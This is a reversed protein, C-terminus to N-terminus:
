KRGGFCDQFFNQFVCYGTISAGPPWGIGAEWFFEGGSDIGVQGALGAQGQAGFNWGVTPDYPSWTVSGGVGPTVIGGGVYGYVGGTGIIIGGTGGIWFGGSVNIDIYWLGLPDKLLLPNNVVYAYSNMTEPDLFMFNRAAIGLAYMDRDQMWMRAQVLNLADEAVFRQLQSHYYRSRYYSLGTGDNERGTYQFPNSSSAGTATTKGFPEYTYETQVTGSSDALAIASGLADSLFHSTTGAQVDTRRFPEDIGLGGLINGLV